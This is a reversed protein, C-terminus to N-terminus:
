KRKDCDSRLCKSDPETNNENVMLDLDQVLMFGSEVARRCLVILSVQDLLRGKHANLVAQQLDRIVVIADKIAVPNM